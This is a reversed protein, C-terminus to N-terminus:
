ELLNKNDLFAIFKMEIDDPLLSTPLQTIEVEEEESYLDELEEESSEKEVEVYPELTNTISKLIKYKKVKDKASNPEGSHVINRIIILEKITYTM